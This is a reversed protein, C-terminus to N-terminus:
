GLSKIYGKENIRSLDVKKIDQSNWITFFYENIPKFLSQEEAPRLILQFSGERGLESKYFGLYITRYDIIVIRFIPMFSYLEVEINIYKKQYNALENLTKFILNSVHNEDLNQAISLKKCESSNPNLLLFKLNGRRTGIEKIKKDMLVGTDMWKRGAIAMLVFDSKSKNLIYSASGNGSVTSEVVDEIGKLYYKAWKSAFFLIAIASLTLILLYNLVLSFNSKINSPDVFYIVITSLINIALPLLVYFSFKVLGDSYIIRAIIEKISIGEIFM